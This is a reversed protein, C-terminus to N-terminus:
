IDFREREAREERTTLTLQQYGGGPGPQVVVHGEEVEPGSSHPHLLNAEKLLPHHDRGQAKHNHEAPFIPVLALVPLRHTDFMCWPPPIIPYKLFFDLKEEDTRTITLHGM